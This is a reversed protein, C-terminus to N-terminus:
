RGAIHTGRHRHLRISSRRQSSSGACKPRPWRSTAGRRSRTRSERLSLRTFNSLAELSSLFVQIPTPLVQTGGGESGSLRIERM